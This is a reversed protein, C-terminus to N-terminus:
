LGELFDFYFLICVPGAPRLSRRSLMGLWGPVRRGKSKREKGRACDDVLGPLVAEFWLQATM